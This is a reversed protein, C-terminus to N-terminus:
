RGYLQANTPNICSTYLYVNLPSVEHARLVFLPLRSPSKLPQTKFDRQSPSVATKATTPHVVGPGRRRGRPASHSLPPIM